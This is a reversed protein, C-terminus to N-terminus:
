TWGRLFPPEDATPKGALAYDSQAQPAGGVPRPSAVRPRSIRGRRPQGQERHRNAYRLSPGIEDVELEIVDAEGGGSDRLHPVQAQRHRDGTVGAVLERRRKRPAERWVQCRM